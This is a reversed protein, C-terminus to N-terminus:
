VHKECLAYTRVTISFSGNLSSLAPTQISATVNGDFVKGLLRSAVKARRFLQKVYVWHLVNSMPNYVMYGYIQDDDEPDCAILIKSNKLLKEILAHQATTFWNRDLGSYPRSNGLCQIWSSFIFDEDIPKGERLEIILKEKL